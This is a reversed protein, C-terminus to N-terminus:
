SGAHGRVLDGFVEEKKTAVFSPAEYPSFADRAEPDPDFRLGRGPDLCLTRVHYGFDRLADFMERAARGFSEFVIIPADPRGLTRAGGAVVDLEAGEVDIKVLDIRRALGAAVDDLTTTAVECPTAARGAGSRLSAIGSNGPDASEYFPAHGHRSSVAHPRVSVNGLENMQVNRELRARIAPSPEFAVVAGAEGVHRSALVSYYGANAGVDVFVSGLRLAARVFRTERIEFVGYLFLARGIADRPVIEMRLGPQALAVVRPRDLWGPVLVPAALYSLRRFAARLPRDWLQPKNRPTNRVLLDLM